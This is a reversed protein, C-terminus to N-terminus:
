PNSGGFCGAYAAAASDFGEAQCAYASFVLNGFSAPDSGTLPEADDAVTVENGTLIFSTVATSGDGIIVTKYAYVGPYSTGLATWDTANVTFELNGNSSDEVKVFLYAAIGNEIIVNVQPDKPVTVGPMLGEYTSGTSQRPDGLTYSAPVLAGSGDVSAAVYTLTSEDLKFNNTVDGDKIINGGGAPVFTNTVESSEATLFALTGVGILAVLVLAIAVSLIKKKNM